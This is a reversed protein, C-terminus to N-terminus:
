YSRYIVVLILARDVFETASGVDRGFSRMLWCIWKDETLVNTAELEYSLDELCANM